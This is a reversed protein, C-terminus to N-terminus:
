SGDESVVARPPADGGRRRAEEDGNDNHELSTARWTPRLVATILAAPFVFLCSRPGPGLARVRRQSRQGYASRELLAILATTQNAGKCHHSSLLM